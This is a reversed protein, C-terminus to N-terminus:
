RRSKARKKNKSGAPAPATAKPAAPEAPKPTTAPQPRPAPVPVPGPTPSIMTVASPALYEAALVVGLLVAGIGLAVLSVYLSHFPPQYKFEIDHAGPELYVGRMLYNCRLMREPQGDVTVKWPAEYRDNLLLVTPAHANSKLKVDKPAYSTIDVTGSDQNTEAGPPPAPVGGAVLVNHAPDFDPNAILALSESSNTNVQWNSYLKARPLANTYEMVAYIGNTDPVATMQDMALTLAGGPKPALNFRTVVKLIPADPGVSKAIFEPIAAAGLLYRTNTLQWFRGLRTADSISNPKFAAVYNALDDPM